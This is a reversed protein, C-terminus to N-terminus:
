AAVGSVSGRSHYLLSFPPEEHGVRANAGKNEPRRLTSTQHHSLLLERRNHSQRRPRQAGLPRRSICRCRYRIRECESMWRGGIRVVAVERVVVARVRVATSAPAGAAQVHYSPRVRAPAFGGEAGFANQAHNLKM